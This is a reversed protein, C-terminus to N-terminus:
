ATAGHYLEPWQRKVFGTFGGVTQFPYGWESQLHDLVDQASWLTEGKGRMKLWEEVFEKAEPHGDFWRMPNKGRTGRKGSLVERATAAKTRSM